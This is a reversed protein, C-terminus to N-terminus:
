VKVWATLAMFLCVKLYQYQVHRDSRCPLLSYVPASTYSSQVCFSWLVFLVPCLYSVLFDAWNHCIFWHSSFALSVTNIECWCHNLHVATLSCRCSFSLPVWPVCYFLSEFQVCIVPAQSWSPAPANCSFFYDYNTLIATCFFDTGIYPLIFTVTVCSATNTITKLSELIYWRYKQYRYRVNAINKLLMLLLCKKFIFNNHFAISYDILIEVARFCFSHSEAFCVVELLSASFQVSCDHYGTQLHCDLICRPAPFLPVCISWTFLWSLQLKM